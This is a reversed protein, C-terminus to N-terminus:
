VSASFHDLNVGDSAAFSIVEAGCIQDCPFCHNKFFFSVRTEFIQAHGLRLNCPHHLRVGILNAENDPVTTNYTYPFPVFLDDVLIVVATLM